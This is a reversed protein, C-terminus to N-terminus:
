LQDKPKRPWSKNALYTDYTKKAMEYSYPPMGSGKNPDVKAGAVLVAIQLILSEITYASSWGNETLLETCIVGGTLIFQNVSYMHPYVVRVFPPSFPYNEPYLLHLIIYDKEGEARLRKLDKDLRSDPDVKFLKVRWEYLNNNVLEVTFVNNKYSDSEYFKKLEKMLRKSARSPDPKANRSPAVQPIVIAVLVVVLVSAVPSM